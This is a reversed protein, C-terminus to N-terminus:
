EFMYFRTGKPCTMFGYEDEVLGLAKNLEGTKKEAAYYSSYGLVPYMKEYGDGTSVFLSIVYMKKEKTISNGYVIVIVM